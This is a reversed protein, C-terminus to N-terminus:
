SKIISYNICFEESNKEKGIDHFPGFGASVDAVSLKNPDREKNQPCKSTLFEADANYRALFLQSPNNTQINKKVRQAIIPAM